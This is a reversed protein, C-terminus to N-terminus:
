KSIKNNDNTNVEGIIADRGPINHKLGINSVIDGEKNLISSDYKVPFKNLNNNSDKLTLIIKEILWM